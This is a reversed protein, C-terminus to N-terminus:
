ITRWRPIIEIKTADGSVSIQNIGPQLEPFVGSFKDNLNTLGKFVNMMDSDIEIYSSVDYFKSQQGNIHLALDGSGYIKIYPLSSHIETNYLSGTKGLIETNDGDFRYRYPKCTFELETKAIHSNVTDFDIGKTLCAKVYYHPDYSDFLKYYTNDASMWNRLDYTAYALDTNENDGSNSEPAFLTIGYAFDGNNYKGNDIIIDGSRGSVSVFSIDRAPKNYTKKYRILIGFDRSDKGNYNFYNIM